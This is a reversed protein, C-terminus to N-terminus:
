NFYRNLLIKIRHICDNLNNVQRNIIFVIRQMPCVIYTGTLNRERHFKWYKKIYRAICIQLIIIIIIPIGYLIFFLYIFLSTNSFSIQCVFSGSQYVIEKSLIITLILFPSILWQFLIIKIYLVMSFLSAQQSHVISIFRRYTQISFIFLLFRLHNL